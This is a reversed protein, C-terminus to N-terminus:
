WSCDVGGPQGMCLYEYDRGVDALGSGDTALTVRSM